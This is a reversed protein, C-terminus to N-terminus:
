TSKAGLAIRRHLSAAEADARRGARRARIWSSVSGAAMAVTMGEDYWRALRERSVTRDIEGVECGGLSRAVIEDVAARWHTLSGTARTMTGHSELTIM